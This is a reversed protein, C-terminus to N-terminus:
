PPSSPDMYSLTTGACVRVCAHVNKNICIHPRAHVRRGSHTDASARRTHSLHTWANAYTGLCISQFARPPLPILNTSINHTRTQLLSHLNYMRTHCATQTEGTYLGNRTKIGAAPNNCLALLILLKRLIFMVKDRLASRKLYTVLM